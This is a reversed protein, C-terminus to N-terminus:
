GSRSARESTRITANNICDDKLAVFQLFTSKGSGPAGVLALCPHSGLLEHLERDGTEEERRDQPSQEHRSSAPGAVRLRTYVQQLELHDAREARLGRLELRRTSDRLRELYEREGKVSSADAPEEVRAAIAAAIGALAAQRPQADLAALPKRPDNLAQFAKLAEHDRSLRGDEGLASARVHLVLVRLGTRESSALLAPLEHETVFRSALFDASVLLIAVQAQRLAAEIQDRWRQGAAIRSDDWVDLREKLPALHTRLEGLWRKDKHSYSIFVRTGSM